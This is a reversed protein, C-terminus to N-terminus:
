VPPTCTSKVEVYQPVMIYHGDKFTFRNQTEIIAKDWKQKWKPDEIREVMLAVKDAERSWFIVTEYEATEYAPNAVFTKARPLKPVIGTIEIAAACAAGALLKFINRRNM